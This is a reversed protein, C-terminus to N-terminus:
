IRGLLKYVFYIINPSIRYRYWLVFRKNISLYDVLPCPLHSTKSLEIMQRLKKESEKDKNVKGLVVDMYYLTLVAISDFLLISKNKSITAPLKVYDHLMRDANKYFQKYSKIRSASSMTQGDRGLYYLYITKSFFSCTEAYLTSYFVFQTDTYSIGETQFYKNEILLPTKVAICHMARSESFTKKSWDINDLYYIEDSLLNPIASTKIPRSNFDLTTFPTFVIDVEKNQLFEIYEKLNSKEYRDDADCIRFYKGTAVKLSANICSGYNGNPKDIVKFTGPYRVEYEHGIQSSKDKSGDNVVLIELKEMTKQDSIFSELCRGLLAEMNYTPICVTLVKEM